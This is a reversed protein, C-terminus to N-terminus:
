ALHKLGADVAAPSQLAQASAGFSGSALMGQVADFGMGALSGTRGYRYALDAGTAASDSGSLHKSLLANTLAWSVPAGATDFTAALGTFDFSEVKRNVLKDTSAPNFDQMAEAIVQLNQLSMNGPLGYWDKFTIKDGSGGLDLVLDNSSRTLRMDAYGIGGGLSLTNDAGSSANVV